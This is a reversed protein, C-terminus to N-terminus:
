YSGETYVGTHGPMFGLEQWFLGRYNWYLGWYRGTYIGLIFVVLIGTYGGLIFGLVDRYLGWYTRTYVGLIFELVEWYLGFYM